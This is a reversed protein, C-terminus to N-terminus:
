HSDAGNPKEIWTWVYGGAVGLTTVIVALQGGGGLLFRDGRKAAAPANTVPIVALENFVLCPKM